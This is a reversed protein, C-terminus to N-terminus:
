DMEQILVWNSDPKRDKEQFYFLNDFVIFARKENMFSSIFKELEEFSAACMGFYDCIILDAQAIATIIGLKKRGLADLRRIDTQLDKNLHSRILQAIEDTYIKKKKLYSKITPPFSNRWFPFSYFPDAKIIQIGAPVQFPTSEESKLFIKTLERAIQDGSFTKKLSLRPTWIRIRQGMKLEFAPVRCNLVVFDQCTIIKTHNM